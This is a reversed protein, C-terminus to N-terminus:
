DLKQLQLESPRIRYGNVFSECWKILIERVDIGVEALQLRYDNRAEILFKELRDPEVAFSFPYRKLNHKMTALDSQQELYLEILQSIKGIDTAEALPPTVFNLIAIVYIAFVLSAFDLVWHRYLKELALGNIGEVLLFTAISNQNFPDYLGQVDISDRPTRQLAIELTPEVTADPYMGDGEYLYPLNPVHSVYSYIGMIPRPAWILEVQHILERALALAKSRKDEEHSYASILADIASLHRQLPTGAPTQDLWKRFRALEIHRDFQAVNRPQPRSKGDWWVKWQTPSVNIGYRKSLLTTFPGQEAEQLGLEPAAVRKLLRAWIRCRYLDAPQLREYNWPHGRKGKKRKKLIRDM